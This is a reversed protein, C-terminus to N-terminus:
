PGKGKQGRGRRAGDPLERVCEKRMQGQLEHSSFDKQSQSTCRHRNLDPPKVNHFPVAEAPLGPSPESPAPSPVQPAAEGPHATSRLEPGVAGHADASLHWFDHHLPTGSPAHHTRRHWWHGLARSLVPSLATPPPGVHQKRVDSSISLSNVTVSPGDTDEYGHWM